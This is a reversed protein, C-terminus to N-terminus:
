RNGYMMQNVTSQPIQGQAAQQSLWYWYNGDSPSGGFPGGSVGYSYAPVGYGYAPVGYGYGYAPAGYGYGYAPVGYGYAPVGYSYAPVGYGYRYAYRRRHGAEAPAVWMAVVLLIGFAMLARKM